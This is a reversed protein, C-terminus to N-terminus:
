GTVPPAVAGAVEARVVRTCARDRVTAANGASARAVNCRRGATSALVRVPLRVTRSAGPALRGLRWIVVGDRLVAGAPRRRLALGLPLRDRIVVGEARVRGRNAVRIAYVIGGGSRARRPATKTIALRTRQPELGQPLRAACVVTTRAVAEVDAGTTTLGAVNEYAGCSDATTPSTLHVTRTGGPELTGYGCTLVGDALLCGPSAPSISWDIGPGAPM